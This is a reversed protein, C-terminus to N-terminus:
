LVGSNSAALFGVREPTASYLWYRVPTPWIFRVSTLTIRTMSIPRFYLNQPPAPATAHWGREPLGEAIAYRTPLRFRRGWQLARYHTFERINLSMSTRM